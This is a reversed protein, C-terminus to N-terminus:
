GLCTRVYLDTYKDKKKIIEQRVCCDGPIAVDIFKVTNSAKEVLTIDPCNHEIPSDAVIMFDWMLTCATNSM